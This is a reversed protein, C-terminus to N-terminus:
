DGGSNASGFVSAGKAREGLAHERYSEHTGYAARESSRAALSTSDRPKSRSAQLTCRASRPRVCLKLTM